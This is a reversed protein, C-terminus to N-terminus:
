PGLNVQILPHSSYGTLLPRVDAPMKYCRNGFIILLQDILTTGLYKSAIFRFWSSCRM